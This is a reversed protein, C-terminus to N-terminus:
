NVAIPVNVSPLVCFMVLETAQDEELVPTTVIVAAPNAVACPAPDAFMLADWFPIVELLTVSVTDAAVSCDIATVAALVDIALPM